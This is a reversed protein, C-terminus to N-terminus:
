SEVEPKSKQRAEKLRDAIAQKQEETLDREVAKGRFSLLNKPARFRVGNIGDRGEYVDFLKWEKPNAAVLKKLKTLYMNDSTYVDIYDQDRVSNIVIEQEEIAVGRIILDESDYIKGKVTKLEM